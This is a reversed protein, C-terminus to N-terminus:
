RVTVDQQGSLRPGQGWFVNGEGTNIMECVTALGRYSKRVMTIQKCVSLWSTNLGVPLFFDAEIWCQLVHVFNGEAKESLLDLDAMHLIFCSIFHSQRIAHWPELCEGHQDCLVRIQICRAWRMRKVNLNTLLQLPCSSSMVSLGASKEQGNGEPSFISCWMIATFWESDIISSENSGRLWDGDCESQCLRCLVIM